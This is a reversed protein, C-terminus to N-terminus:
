TSSSTAAPSAPRSPRPDRGPPAAGGRAPRLARRLLLAQGHLRRRRRAPRPRARRHREDRDPPDGPDPRRRRAGVEPALPRRPRPAHPRAGARRLRRDLAHMLGERGSATAEVTYGARACAGQRSLGQTDDDDEVVLIRRSMSSAEPLRSLGGRPRGEARNRSTRPAPTLGPPRRRLDQAGQREIQM